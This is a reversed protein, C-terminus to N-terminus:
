ARLAPRSLRTTNTLGLKKMQRSTLTVPHIWGSGTRKMEDIAYQASSPNVHLDDNLFPKLDDLSEFRRVPAFGVRTVPTFVLSYSPGKGNGRHRFIHVFGEWQTSAKEQLHKVTPDAPSKLYIRGMPVRKNIGAKFVADVVAGYAALPGKSDRLPTAIFLHWEEPHPEYVWKCFTVPIHERDLVELVEAEIKRDLTVLTAQDM